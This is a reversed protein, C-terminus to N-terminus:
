AFSSAFLMVPYASVMMVLPSRFPGFTTPLQSPLVFFITSLRERFAGYGVAGSLGGRRAASSVAPCRTASATISALLLVHNRAHGLSDEPPIM